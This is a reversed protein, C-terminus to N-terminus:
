YFRVIVWFLWIFSPLVRYFEMFALLGQSYGLVALYFETFSPLVRSFATFGLLGLRLANFSPLVLYCSNFRHAVVHNFPSVLSRRRILRRGIASHPSRAWGVIEKGNRAVHWILGLVMKKKDKYFILLDSHSSVVKAKRKREGSALSNESTSFAVGFSPFSPLLGTRSKHPVFFFVRYFSPVSRRFDSGVIFNSEDLSNGLKVSNRM